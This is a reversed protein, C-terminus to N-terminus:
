RFGPDVSPGVAIASTSYRSERTARYSLRAAMQQYHSVGESLVANARSRCTATGNMAVTAPCPCLFAGTPGCRRSASWRIASTKTWTSGCWARPRFGAMAVRMAPDMELKPNSPQFYTLDKVKEVGITRIALALNLEQSLNGLLGNFRSIVLGPDMQRTKIGLMKFEPSLLDPNRQTEAIYANIGNVFAEVFPPGHPHYWQLEQQLDGRFLFLRNGIDRKLEKPGLIEAVTGTAQRRWLEIQFLRDRAVNYGQVFFLDTENKAYIHSIRWFDKLIEVPESLGPVLLQAAQFGAL